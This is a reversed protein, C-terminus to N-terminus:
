GLPPPRPPHRNPSRDRRTNRLEGGAQRMRMIM